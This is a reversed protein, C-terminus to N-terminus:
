SLAAAAKIADLANMGDTRFTEFMQVALARVEDSMGQVVELLQGLELAADSVTWGEEFLEHDLDMGSFEFGQVGFEVEAGLIAVYAVEGAEGASLFNEIWTNVQSGINALDSVEFGDVKLGVAATLDHSFEGFGHDRVEEAHDTLAECNLPFFGGGKSTDSEFASGDALVLYHITPGGSTILYSVIGFPLREIALCEDLDEWVIPDGHQTRLFIPARRYLEAIADDIEIGDRDLGFAEALLGRADDMDYPDFENLDQGRTGAAAAASVVRFAEALAAFEQPRDGRYSFNERDFPLGELAEEITIISTSLITM